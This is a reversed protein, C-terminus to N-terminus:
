LGKVLYETILGLGCRTAGAGAALEHQWASLKPSCYVHNQILERASLALCPSPEKPLAARCFSLQMTLALSLQLLIQETCLCYNVNEAYELRQLEQECIYCPALETCPQSHKRALARM